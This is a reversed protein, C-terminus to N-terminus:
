FQQKTAVAEMLNQFPADFPTAPFEAALDVGAELPEKTFEKTEGERAATAKPLASMMTDHVNAFSLGHTGALGKAIDRLKALTENHVKGDLRNFFAFLDGARQHLRRGGRRPRERPADLDRAGSRLRRPM